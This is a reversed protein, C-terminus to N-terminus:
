SASQLISWNRWSGNNWRQRVYVKASVTDTVYMQVATSGVPIRFVLLVGYAYANQPLGIANSILYTGPAIINDISGEAVGLVIGNNILSLSDELRSTTAGRAM